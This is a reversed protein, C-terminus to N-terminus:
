SETILMLNVPGDLTAVTRSGVVLKENKTSPMEM